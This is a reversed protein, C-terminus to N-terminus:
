NIRVHKQIRKNDQRDTILTGDDQKIMTTKSKYGVKHHESKWLIIKCLKQQQETGNKLNNAKGM